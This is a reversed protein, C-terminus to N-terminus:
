AFHQSKKDGNKHFQFNEYKTKKINNGMVYM